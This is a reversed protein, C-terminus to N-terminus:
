FQLAGLLAELTKRLPNADLPLGRLSAGAIEKSHPLACAVGIGQKELEARMLVEMEGDAKNIVVHLRKGGEATMTRITGALMLADCSPDLVAVVADVGELLGRGFHEV